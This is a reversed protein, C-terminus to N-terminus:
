LHPSELPKKRARDSVYKSVGMLLHLDRTGFKSKQGLCSRLLLRLTGLKGPPAHGLGGLKNVSLRMCHGYWDLIIVRLGTMICVYHSVAAFMHLHAFM